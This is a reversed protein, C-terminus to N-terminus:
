DKTSSKFVTEAVSFALFILFAPGWVWWISMAMGIIQTVAEYM